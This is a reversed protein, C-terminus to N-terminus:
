SGGTAGPPMPEARGTTLKREMEKAQRELREIERKLATVTEVSANTAPRDLVERAQRRLGDDPDHNALRELDGRIPAPVLALRRLSGVIIRRARLGETPLWETMRDLIRGRLEDGLTDTALRDGLASLAALRVRLPKARDAHDLLLAPVAAGDYRSAVQIATTRIREEFADRALAATVLDAPYKRSIRGATQLCSVEVALSPDGAKFLDSIAKLVVDDNVWAALARASATRVRADPQKLGALLQDRSDAGGIGGLIRAAEVRLMPFPDGALVKGILERDAPTRGTAIQELARMREPVTPAELLQKEWLDRSKTETWTALVGQKPDLRVLDPRAPVKVLATIERDRIEREFVVTSQAGSSVSPGTPDPCRLEIRLPFHFPESAQTQRITLKVQRDAPEYETIVTVEPCGPRETWDHFFRELSRGTHRELVRRFDSTEVSQYRYETAYRKLAAFFDEDGLQTRLMHLIWGGKPYARSDFMADPNPYRRDVVPRTRALGGRAAVSKRHLQYAGEDRGYKQEAWLVECWTAFGENLWLHSWDKCTLLDGWWQHGLEHAVIWDSNEDLLGRQDVMMGETMTTASTNEMGGSVFQEVVVQAYKEWPYDVGFRTSFFELMERTRGFTPAIEAGRDVPVYYTVPIQRWSERGVAFKGAVLTVLYSVHPESQRWHFRERKGGALTERGVLRGNSLVEMGADVTAFIETTQKENPHDFCPFWRRNGIAQGQTWMQLPVKPEAASPGFFFLGDKPDRVQYAVVLKLREGKRRADPFEVLLETGTNQFSLRNGDLTVSSVEHGVADFRVSNLPRLPVLDITATGAIRKEALFLDLDLRIHQIDAPRDVATKLPETEAPTAAAATPASAPPVQGTPNASPATPAAKAAANAERRERRTPAPNTTPPQTAPAPAQWAFGPTALILALV